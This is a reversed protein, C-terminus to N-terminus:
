IDTTWPRTTIVRLDRFFRVADAQTALFITDEPYRVKVYAYNPGTLLLVFEYPERSQESGSLVITLSRTAPSNFQAIARDLKKQMVDDM